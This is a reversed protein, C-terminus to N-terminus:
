YTSFTSRGTNDEQSTLSISHVTSSLLNTSEKPSTVPTSKFLAFLGGCWTKKVSNNESPKAVSSNDAVTSVVASLTTTDTRNRNIQRRRQALYCALMCLLISASGFVIAGGRLNTVADNAGKKAHALFSAMLLMMSFFMFVGGTAASAHVDEQRIEVRSWRNYTLM